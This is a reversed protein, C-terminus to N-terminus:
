STIGENNETKIKKIEPMDSYDPDPEVKIKNEEMTILNLNKKPNFCQCM